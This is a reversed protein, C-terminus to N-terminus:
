RYVEGRYGETLLYNVAARSVQLPVVCDYIYFNNGFGRSPYPTLAASLGSAYAESHRGMWTLLQM